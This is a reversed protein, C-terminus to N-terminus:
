GGVKALEAELEDIQAELSARQEAKADYEVGPTGCAPCVGNGHEGKQPDPNGTIMLIQEKTAGGTFRGPVGASGLPCSENECEYTKM